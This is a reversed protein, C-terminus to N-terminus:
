LYFTKGDIKAQNTKVFNDPMFEPIKTLSKNLHDDESKHFIKKVKKPM